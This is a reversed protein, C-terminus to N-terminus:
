EASTKPLPSSFNPLNAIFPIDAHMHPAMRTNILDATIKACEYASLGEAIEDQFYKAFAIREWRGVFPNWAAVEVYCGESGSNEARAIMGNFSKGLKILEELDCGWVNTDPM